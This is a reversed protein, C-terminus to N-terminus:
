YVIFFVTYNLHAFFCQIFQLGCRHCVLIQLYFIRLLTCYRNLHNYQDITSLPKLKEIISGVAQSHPKGSKSNIGLHKAITTIDLLVTATEKLAIRPVQLGDYYGNLALAQYQPEVGAASWLKMMQTAARNKANLIMAAARTKAIEPNALSKKNKYEGTKRITPLVESTVWRKFEKAKPLKSSMILSYLGSENIVTLGRNPIEFTANESRQIIEKDESDVHTALADKSNAYGLINAVDKGVFYPTNDIKVSRISGNLDVNEFVQMENM